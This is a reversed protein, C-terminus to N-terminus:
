VEYLVLMHRGLNESECTGPDGKAHTIAIGRNALISKQIIERTSGADNVLSM